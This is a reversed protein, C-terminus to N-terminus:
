VLFARNVKQLYSLSKKKIRSDDSLPLSNGRCKTKYFVVGSCLAALPSENSDDFWVTEDVTVFNLVM